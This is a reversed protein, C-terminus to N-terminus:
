SLKSNLNKTLSPKLACRLSERSPNHSDTKPKRSLMRALKECRFPPSLEHGIYLLIGKTTPAQLMHTITQVGLIGRSLGM